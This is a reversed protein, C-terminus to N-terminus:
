VSLSQQCPHLELWRRLFFSLAACALSGTLYLAESPWTLALEEAAFLLYVIEVATMAATFGLSWAASVRMRRVSAYWDRYTLPERVRMLQVVGILLYILPILELLQPIAAFRWMGGASPHLATFGYVAFLACAPVVTKKRAAPLGMPFTYLEGAYRLEGDAGREWGQFYWDRFRM